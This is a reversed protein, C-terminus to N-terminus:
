SEYTALYHDFLEWDFQWPDTKQEPAIDSDGLVYSIAYQQKLYAVLYALSRYQQVTPGAITTTNLEIGLSFQDVSTRGDPMIGTGAHYAVNGDEVFRVISGDRGIFYHPSVGYAESQELVGDISFPDGLPDAYYTSHLVVTDIVRPTEPTHHGWTVFRDEVEPAPLSTSVQGNGPSLITLPSYWYPVQGVPRSLLDSPLPTASVGRVSMEARLAELANQLFFLIQRLVVDNSLVSSPEDSVVTAPFSDDASYYEAVLSSFTAPDLSGTVELGRGTNKQYCSLASYTVIDLYGHAVLSGLVSVPCESRDLLVQALRIDEDFMGLMYTQSIAPRVVSLGQLVQPFLGSFFDILEEDGDDGHVVHVVFSSEEAAGRLGDADYYAGSIAVYVTGDPLDHAPDVTIVRNDASLVARHSIAYGHADDTRLTIFNLLTDGFLGGNADKYIPKDFTIVINESPNQIVRNLDPSFSVTFLNLLSRVAVTASAASGQNDASDYYNNSVTLTVTGNVLATDPDVTVTTGSISAVFPLAVGNGDTLTILSALSPADFPTDNTDQYIDESFSLTFDTNADTVASGDAPSLTVTPATTDTPSPTAVTFTAATMAGQLAATDYYANSIATYVAGDALANTPDITIVTKESNITATYAIDAGNADAAKLTLIGSLDADTLATGNADKQVVESFSLTINQTNDTITSGDAPSLTVTPATTDAPAPLAVTVTASAVSGQNDASDYYNNSVTLTVTGNVLAADPDVTVTTGSISVAFPLATGNGDTLTILSALSPANFPTDNTDQYVDESFSLTFDTNADTVTSGDSPSFSVTPATTDTPQPAPAAVTFSSATAAGQNDAADYYGDTIAVYVAGNVLVATPDVTVVRNDVDIAATFPIDVGNADAVKLTVLNVLMTDTFVTGATDQYIPEDFTLVVNVGADTVASGDAPSLTVTPATTDTPSPTAVTFTAATMAGQLAATDYYANSIATYVAGDALANTPDITIVTKESNITATYAIDAGNADAAKLTLIGSLDADTLATGNADKQVVESFSLTINQTNDTITSGDAPSLTVTPATTDAPAPLAVTVTASAVSGQNDASDYYNNSVTLTVTGNVLAADPDVTVTTGSISVAFPLATGNGDTLTILSALSPANFPTDNTDQYVDESFSLTFDTNADTVTSGDSPSFSVTPATTDTPQPVVQDQGASAAIFFTSNVADGQEGAVTYYVDSIAVYVGGNALDNRPNITVLTNDSGISADFAIDTGDANNTKLAIIAALTTDTFTTQAADAYIAEDFSVTIDISADTVVVDQVPSFTAGVDVAYVARALGSFILVAFVVVPVVAAYLNTISFVKSKM